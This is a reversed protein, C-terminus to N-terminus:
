IPKLHGNRHYMIPIRCQTSAALTSGGETVVNCKAGTVRQQGREGRGQGAHGYWGPCARDRLTDRRVFDSIGSM